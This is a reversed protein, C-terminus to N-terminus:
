DNQRLTTIYRHLYTAFAGLMIPIAIYLFILGFKKYNLTFALIMVGFLFGTIKGLLNSKYIISKRRFLIFSGILILIDRLAIILVAWFPIANLILLTILIVVLSLKDCLPDLLKGLESEQRFHRAFYGDIVDSILAILMFIFAITRKENILFYVIFPLLFLRSITICNAITFKKTM